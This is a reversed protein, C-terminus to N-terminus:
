QSALRQKLYDINETPRPDVGYLIALYYSIFDGIYALSFMRALLGEGRSCIELVAVDERRLVEATIDMRKAIRPHMYKDKLMVVVFNKLLRRPGQWGVIENHNMESFLFSSALIKANENLQSRLRMVCGEFPVSPAYIIPFKNYLRSAVSKAINDKLGIRPRLSNDRLGEITKIAEQAHQRVEDILNLKALVCLPIISLYGLALRPPIGSPIQIFTFKDKTACEKLAGGSSIAIVGAGIKAAQRYADLTEETNGSYSLTFVLTDRDVCAPLEYERLVMIPIKADLYLYGKVLDAGSASGGMGCFVVKNFKKKDFFLKVQDGIALAAQCQVPFDLLIDLMASKDIRKIAQNSLGRM